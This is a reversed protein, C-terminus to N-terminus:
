LPRSPVAEPGGKRGRSPAGASTHEARGHTGSDDPHGLHGCLTALSPSRPPAATIQGLGPQSWQLGFRLDPSAESTVNRLKHAVCALSEDAAVGQGPRDQAIGGPWEGCLRSDWLGPFDPCCPCQASAVGSGAPGGGRGGDRGHIQRGESTKALGWPIPTWGVIQQCDTVWDVWIWPHAERAHLGLDAPWAPPWLHCKDRGRTCRVARPGSPLCPLRAGQLAAWSCGRASSGLESGAQPDPQM